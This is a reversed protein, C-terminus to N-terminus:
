PRLGPLKRSWVGLAVTLLSLLLALTVRGQAAAHAAREAAQQQEPGPPMSRMVELLAPAVLVLLYLFFFGFVYVLALTFFPRPLAPARRRPSRSM